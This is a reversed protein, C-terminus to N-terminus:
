GEAGDVAGANGATTNSTLEGSTGDVTVLHRVGDQGVVSVAWAAGGGQETIRRLSEARGGPVAAQAKELAASAGVSPLPAPAQGQARGQGQGQARGQGQEQGEGGRQQGHGHGRGRGQEQGRGDGRESGRGDGHGSGRGAGDEASAAAEHHGRGSEGHGEHAAAAVALGGAGLLAVTVVGAALRREKGGAWARLRQARGRRPALPPLEPVEPEEGSSPTFSSQPETM